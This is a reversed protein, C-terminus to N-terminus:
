RATALAKALSEGLVELMRANLTRDFTEYFHLRPPLQIKTRFAWLMRIDRDGPGVRQFVGWARPDATARADIIFTRRKGQVQVKGRKTTRSKAPLMGSPTRREFLRLSSPYLSRAV